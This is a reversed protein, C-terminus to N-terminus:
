LAHTPIIFSNLLKFIIRHGLKGMFIIDQYNIFTWAKKKISHNFNVHLEAGEWDSFETAPFLCLDDRDM